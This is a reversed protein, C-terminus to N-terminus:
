GFILYYWVGVIERLYYNIRLSLWSTRAPILISQVNQDQAILGTRYLHYESSVIGVTEPRTGTQKTILDLSFALNERTSTAQDESLIREPSIGKKVLWDAMCAAETIEEGPGQGGSVICLTNPHAQLYVYAADLRVRLTLSPVTGTVGAGLVIVADVAFIVVSSKVRPFLKCISFAIIDVGGTSGGGLFSVACGTGVFIGGFIAAILLNVNGHTMAKLYLFGGLVDPAALRMFLSFFLPYVITSVLTKLAFDRGLVLLGLLFLAWTLITIYVDVSLSFPLLEVLIIAIGSMGGTVLEFPVIFVASGFALIATGIVVLLINKILHLLEQRTLRKIMFVESFLVLDM